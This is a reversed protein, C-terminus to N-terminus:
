FKHSFGVGLYHSDIERDSSDGLEREDNFRYFVNISSQKNLKYETGITYRIRSIGDEEPDNLANTVEVSAFPEFKCKRINYSLELRSRLVKKPNSREKPNSDWKCTETNYTSDNSVSPVGMRITQQYKERLSIKVRGVEASATLYASWRHRVEWQAFKANPSNYNILSYDAGFKLMENLKYDAGITTMWRDTTQFDNRTRWEEEFSIDFKKTIEKELELNYSAGWDDRQARLTTPVFLYIAAAFALFRTAKM